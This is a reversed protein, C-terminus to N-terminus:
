LRERHIRQHLKQATKMLADVDKALDSDQEHALEREEKIEDMSNVIIAIFLNLIVFSSLLVFSVFYIWSYPMAELATYMLDTWDELTMIRFLTLMSTSLDKWHAPDITHFLEFGAVAYIYFLIVVLVGINLVKPISKFLVQVILRLGPMVSILRLIRLLRALRIITAFSGVAPILAIVIITFDFVNWGSKFYDLPRPSLAIIKCVAELIFIGLFVGNLVAFTTTFGAMDARTELGIVIANLIIVGIIGREFWPNHVIHQCRTIM